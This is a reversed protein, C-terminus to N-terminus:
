ELATSTTSPAKRSCRTSSSSMIKSNSLTNNQFRIDFAHRKKFTHWGPSAPKQYGLTGPSTPKPSEEWMSPSWFNNSQQDLLESYSSAQCRRGSSDTKTSTFVNCSVPPDIHDADNLDIISAGSECVTTHTSICLKEELCGSCQRKELTIM